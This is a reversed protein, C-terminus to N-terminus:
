FYVKLSTSGALRILQQVRENFDHIWAMVTVVKPVTYRLWDAPVLGKNLAM